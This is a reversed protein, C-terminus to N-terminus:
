LRIEQSIKQAVNENVKRKKQEVTAALGAHGTGKRPLTLRGGVEVATIAELADNVSSLLAITLATTTPRGVYAPKHKQSSSSSSTLSFTEYCPVM